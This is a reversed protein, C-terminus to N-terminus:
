ASIPSVTAACRPSAGPRCPRLKRQHNGLKELGLQMAVDLARRRRFQHAMDAGAVADVQGAQEVLLAGEGPVVEGREQVGIVAGGGDEARRLVIAVEGEGIEGAEGGFARDIALHKDRGVVREGGAKGIAVIDLAQRLANAIRFGRGADDPPHDGGAHAMVARVADEDGGLRHRVLRMRQDGAEADGAVFAHVVGPVEGVGEADGALGSEPEGHMGAFEAARLAHAGREVMEADRPDAMAHAGDLVGVEHAADDLFADHQLEAGAGVDREAEIRRDGVM